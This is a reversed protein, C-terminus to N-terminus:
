KCKDCYQPELYILNHYAKSEKKTFEDSTKIINRCKNCLLAGYGGNFKFKAGYLTVSELEENLYTLIRNRVEQITDDLPIGNFMSDIEKILTEKM